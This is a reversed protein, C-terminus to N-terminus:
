LKRRRRKEDDNGDNSDDSEGGGYGLVEVTVISPIEEQGGQNRAQQTAEDAAGATAGASNSAATLGGLNPAVTVPTGISSGGVQINGANLVVLASINLYGSVRIGADGADVTGTPAILDVDGPPVGAVTELVGIGGGTALGALDTQVDGSQPDILVRTPPASQVTKSSAGAAIDGLSSYIIENGGRLTFIRSTGVIVSKETFISINGGHETLIGQDVPQNEGVDFGVTIGGGPAFLSINGGNATKIERSTLSIDGMWPGGPFLKAIATRASDFNRFGSSAPNNHDRGADRLVLYFIGLALRKQEESPLRNFAAWIETESSGGLGLSSALELLYRGAQPASAPNLFAAIFASFDLRSNDLGAAPGIGAGAIIDAGDFPLYPNRANGVSTVGLGTGDPNNNGVGLDLNRGALVELTGPGNVQVDGALPPNNFDIANGPAQAATRSASNPDYATVDRGAAVVSVDTSRNNQVYFAIDTLDRGAVIRAAKASFLTLGSIDGALAYLHVPDPDNLHLLGPAPLAQKAQLVAHEGQTSGSESFLDDVFVLFDTGTVSAASPDTGVVSQYAFPSAIGPISAPNADSLNIMGSSWANSPANNITTVGTIQLANISGAAALDVTGRASPSLTLNGDVDIDGSFATARLTAPMLRAGTAFPSADTEDLRLWPQYFAATDGQGTM